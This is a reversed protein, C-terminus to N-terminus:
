RPQFEHRERWKAVARGLNVGHADATAFHLGGYVRAQRVEELAHSLHSFSRTINLTNHKASFSLRNTGFFDRLTWVFASTVCNAGSPHDPYPPNAILPTWEPDPTTAPNGDGGAERIATMPRWFGHREKDQFCAIIADAGTTYLMAFVRANEDISLQQTTAVQQFIRNWLAVTHDAWFRAQETQDKTRTSGTARGLSKVEDFEAAYAASTVDLPGPTAFDAADAVLFPKVQGLWRFNNGPLGAVLPRWAGVGTGTTFSPEGNRGDGTRAAIMADAAAEGVEVGGAEAPGDPIADMSTQYAAGLSSARDPLLHLLVRYGATAAAADKSDGPDAASPAGLYPQHDGAIANVADYVAGHVMALHLMAVPPAQTKAVILEDYAVKNWALAQDQVAAGAVGAPVATIGAAPFIAMALLAVMSRTTRLRRSRSM